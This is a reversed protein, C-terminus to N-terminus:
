RFSSKDVDTLVMYDAHLVDNTTLQFCNGYRIRHEKITSTLVSKEKKNRKETKIKTQKVLMVTLDKGKQGGNM